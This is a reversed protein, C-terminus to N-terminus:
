LLICSIGRPSADTYIMTQKSDDFYAICSESSLASKLDEFATNQKETWVYDVNDKLLERLPATITSYDHIFRKMYNKLGLFSQYHKLVKQNPLTKLRRWKKQIQNCATKPFFLVM